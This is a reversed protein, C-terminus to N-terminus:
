IDSLPTIENGNIVDQDQNEEVAITVSKNGYKFQYDKKM